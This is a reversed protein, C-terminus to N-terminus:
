GIPLRCPRIPTDFNGVKLDPDIYQIYPVVSKGILLQSAQIISNM